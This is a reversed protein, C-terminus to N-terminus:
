FEEDPVPEVETPEKSPVLQEVAEDVEGFDPVDLSDTEVSATDVRPAYYSASYDDPQIGDPAPEYRKMYTPSLSSDSLVKKMFLGFIPLATKSGQGLRGTRFHISRYEGGVWAGGVLAPTVGVFWADSHNNSTGTKGGFDIKGDFSGMYMMAGLAQSTAGGDRVGAELMKQLYFSTTPSLATRRKPKAEYVVRGEADLIKSVLVPEVHEGGNAVTAYSNVLELLNVDSAGLPLSPITDLPSIIGMKHATNVITPIGVEQGLRVAVTNISQAFASRLPVDANSFRGDANHPRWDVEEKKRADWTKISIYSDRVRDSPKMGQELAAAYVFLKFTSGPQRMATVKDYKWTKFDIDGVWARVYGTQPEMAVFGTHLFRVMYRISDMTSMMEERQMGDYAFLKVPHPQNMYYDISDPQSEFRAALMKYHSTRKAINEIFGPIVNGREDRWVDGMGRWHSDFSQQVRQMQEDVAEEAYRQMRSDLTTYIRLGDTYPDLEPAHEEIYNAVANRFYLAEGDYASEVRFKLDIPLCKLSDCQAKSLVHHSRMNDLVVNRRSLSNKPNIKPNYASTAKLLGVLVASEEAKLRSPTTDFYTKAATKIGFANSGFDVTNCYMTLIEEKSYFMEIGVALIMEKSKMVLMKVGPIRGLLGNSYKTRVRFMNKVLQQSITSAGRARGQTADKLAAFIGQVDIGHHQYFREDETSVLAKIFLPSISDYPVPQRNENFFRGMLKGDASYIESAAVTKPHMIDSLSPSKGFLWLFNTMVAVCYLVIFLVFTALITLLKKWWPGRYLTRYWAWAKKVLHWLQAPIQAIKM